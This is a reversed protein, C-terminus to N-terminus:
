SVAFWTVMLGFNIENPLIAKGVTGFFMLFSGIRYRALAKLLKDWFVRIRIFNILSYFFGNLQCILLWSNLADRKKGNSFDIINDDLCKQDFGM